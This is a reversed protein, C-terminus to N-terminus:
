KRINYWMEIDRAQQIKDLLLSMKFQMINYWMEEGNDCNQEAFRFHSDEASCEREHNPHKLTQTNSNSNSLPIPSQFWLGVRSLTESVSARKFVLPGSAM